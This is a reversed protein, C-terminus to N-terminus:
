DINKIDYGLTKLKEDGKRRAFFGVLQFFTTSVLQFFTTGRSERMVNPSGNKDYNVFFKCEGKGSTIVFRRYNWDYMEIEASKWVSQDKEKPVHDIVAQLLRRLGTEDGQGENGCFKVIVM